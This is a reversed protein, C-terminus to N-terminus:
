ARFAKQNNIAAFTTRALEQLSASGGYWSTGSSNSQGAACALLASVSLSSAGGFASTVDVYTGGCTSAGTTVDTMQCVRTLDIVASGVPKKAKLANGGLGPDTFYVDLATAITHGKLRAAATSGSALASKVTGKVYAAAASCSAGTAL